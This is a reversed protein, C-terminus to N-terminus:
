RMAHSGNKSLTSTRTHFKKMAVETGTAIMGTHTKVTLEMSIADPTIVPQTKMTAFHTPTKGAISTINSAKTMKKALVNTRGTATTGIPMMAGLEMGTASSTSVEGHAVNPPTSTKMAYFGNMSTKISVVKGTSRVNISTGSATTISTKVVTKMIWSANTIPKLHTLNLASIKFTATNTSKITSASSGYISIVKKSAGHQAVSIM